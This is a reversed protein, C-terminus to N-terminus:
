RVVEIITCVAFSMSVYGNLDFFAKDVRSLDDASVIRQEYALTAAIIAVGVFYVVGLHALLGFAILLAVAAVHLARSIRLAGAVGFRAPISNLRHARDFAADQCSYIIDFGGVWGAVALGLALPAWGFGNTIAIWAGAPAGGLAVGLWLHCAWTFRKALSYGCLIVLALPSLMLPWRGLLAAAAVLILASAVALAVAGGVSVQGSPLERRMTRPNAADFRRDAVRNFAMATTRAAAVAVVILLLRLWSFPAAGSRWAVAACGLAFPLAFVTHPLAVLRAYAGISRAPRREAVHTM